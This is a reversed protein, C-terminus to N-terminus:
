PSPHEEASLKELLLRIAERAEEPTMVPEDSPQAEPVVFRPRAPSEPIKAPAPATMGPKKLGLDIGNKTAIAMATAAFYASPNNRVGGRGARREEVADRTAMLAERILPEPMRSALRRHFRESQHPGTERSGSWTTLSDGIEFVLRERQDPDGVPRPVNQGLDSNEIVNHVNNTITRTSTRSDTKRVAPYTRKESRDAPNDVPAERYTRKVSMDHPPGDHDQSRAALPLSGGAEDSPALRRILLEVADEPILPIEFFVLYLDSGRQMLSDGGRKRYSRERKIFGHEELTKLAEGVTQRKKVGLRKAITEQKPWCWDRREGTARNVFCMRRLEIYVAVPFVGLIPTWREWLYQPVPFQRDAEVLENYADRFEPKLFLRGRREEPSLSSYFEEMAKRAEDRSM